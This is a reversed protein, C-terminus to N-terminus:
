ESTLEGIDANALAIRVAVPIPATAVDPVKIHKNSLTVM